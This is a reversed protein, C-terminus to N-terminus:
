GDEECVWIGFFCYHFQAFMLIWSQYTSHARKRVKVGLHWGRWLWGRMEESEWSGEAVKGTSFLSLTEYKHWGLLVSLWLVYSIYIQANLYTYKIYLMLKQNKWSIWWAPCRGSTSFGSWLRGCGCLCNPRWVESTRARTCHRWYQYDIWFPLTWFIFLFFISKDMNPHTPTNPNPSTSNCM